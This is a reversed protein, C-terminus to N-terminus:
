IEGGGVRREGNLRKARNKAFFRTRQACASGLFPLVPKSDQKVQASKAWLM